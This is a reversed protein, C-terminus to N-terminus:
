ESCAIGPVCHAWSPDSPALAVSVHVHDTHDSAGSYPKWQGPPVDGMSPNWIRRWWIVYLIDLEEANAQLWAALADGRDREGSSVMFDCARGRPHEFRPDGSRPAYCGIGNAGRGFCDVVGDLVRQTSATIHDADWLAPDGTRQGPPCAGTAVSSSSGSGVVGAASRYEEAAQLVATPYDHGPDCEAGGGQNYGFAACAPDDGVGLAVLYRATSHTADYWNWPDAVGDGDGDTAYGGGGSGAAVPPGSVDPDTDSAGARWTSGLFQMPGRAGVDNVQPQGTAADILDPNCGADRNRGHDCEVKGIGALIAWDVGWEGGASAYAALADEPIGVLEAVQPVLEAPLVGAALAEDVEGDESEKAADYAMQAGGGIAAVGLLVAGVLAVVCGRRRAQAVTTQRVVVKDLGRGAARAWAGPGGFVTGVTATGFALARRGTWLAQDAPSLTPRRRVQAPAGAGESAAADTSEASPDGDRGARARVPPQPGGGRSGRSPGLRAAVRRARLAQRRQALAAGVAARRGVRNSAATTKALAKATRTTKGAAKATTKAGTAAGKAVGKAAGAAPGVVM